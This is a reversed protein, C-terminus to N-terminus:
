APLLPHLGARAIPGTLLGCLQGCPLTAQDREGPRREIEFGASLYRVDSAKDTFGARRFGLDFAHKPQRWAKRAQV